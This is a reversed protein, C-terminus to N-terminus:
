GVRSTALGDRVRDRKEVLELTQADNALIPFRPFWRRRQRVMAHVVQTLRRHAIDVRPYFM